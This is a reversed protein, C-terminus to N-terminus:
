KSADPSRWVGDPGLLEYPKFRRKYDMSKSNAVWYGLYYWPIGARRATEIEVLASYTGLGRWSEDPDFYFYVSSFSTRSFDCIGVGLLKGRPDRYEGEITQVPSEYLFMEFSRRDEERPGHRASAYRRYVAFKEDTCVPPGFTIRLDSNRRWTRRQSKSPAFGETPVRMQVCERCGPCVPQYFIEGSRRFNADM